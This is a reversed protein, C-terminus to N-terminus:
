HFDSFWGAPDGAAGMGRPTIPMREARHQGRRTGVPSATLASWTGSRRQACLRPPLAATVDHQLSGAEDWPLPIGSWGAVDEATHLAALEGGWGRWGELACM